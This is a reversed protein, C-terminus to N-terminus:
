DGAASGVQGSNLRPPRSRRLSLHPKVVQSVGPDVQTAFLIDYIAAPNTIGLQWLGWAATSKSRGKAQQRSSRVPMARCRELSAM